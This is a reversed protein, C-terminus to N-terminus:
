WSVTATSVRRLRGRVQHRQLRGEHRSLEAQETRLDRGVIGLEVGDCLFQYGGVGIAELDPTHQAPGVVHQEVPLVGPPVAPLLETLGLLGMETREGLDVQLPGEREGIALCHVERDAADIHVALEGLIGAVPHDRWLRHVM